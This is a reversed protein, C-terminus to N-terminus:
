SFCFKEARHFIQVSALKEGLVSLKRQLVEANM